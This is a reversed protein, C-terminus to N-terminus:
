QDSEDLKPPMGEDRGASSHMDVGYPKNGDDTDKGGAKAARRERAILADRNCKATALRWKLSRLKQETERVEQQLRDCELVIRRLAALRDIADQGDLREQDADSPLVSAKTKRM